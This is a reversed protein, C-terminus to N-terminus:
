PRIFDDRFGRENLSSGRDQWSQDGGGDMSACAARRRAARAGPPDTQRHRYEYDGSPAIGAVRSITEVSYLARQDDIFAYM